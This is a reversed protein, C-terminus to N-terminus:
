YGAQNGNTWSEQEGAFEGSRELWNRASSLNWFPKVNFGEMAAYTAAQNSLGFHLLRNVVIAVRIVRDSYRASRSIFARIEAFERNSQSRMADLLINFCQSSPLNALCHSLADFLEDMQYSAPVEVVITNHTADYDAKIKQLM